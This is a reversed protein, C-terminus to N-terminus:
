NVLFAPPLVGVVSRRYIIQGLAVDHMARNRADTVIEGDKL